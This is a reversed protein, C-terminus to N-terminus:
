RLISYSSRFNGDLLAVGLKGKDVETSCVSFVM